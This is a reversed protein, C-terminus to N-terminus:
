TWRLEIELLSPIKREWDSLCFNWKRQLNDQSADNGKYLNWEPCLFMVNKQMSRLGPTPYLSGNSSFFNVLSVYSITVLLFFLLHQTLLVIVFHLWRYFICNSLRLCLTKIRLWKELDIFCLYCCSGKLYITHSEFLSTHLTFGPVDTSLFAKNGKCGRRLHWDPATKLIVIPLGSCRRKLKPFRIQWNQVWGTCRVMRSM